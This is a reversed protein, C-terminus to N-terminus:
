TDMAVYGLPANAANLKSFHRQCEEGKAAAKDVSFRLKSINGDWDDSGFIASGAVIINAGASAAQDITSPSIGGDVQICRSAHHLVADIQSKRAWHSRRRLAAFQCPHDM